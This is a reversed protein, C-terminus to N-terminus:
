VASLMLTHSAATSHYQCPVISPKPLIGKKLGSHGDYNGCPNVHARVRAAATLLRHSVAFGLTSTVGLKVVVSQNRSPRAASADRM